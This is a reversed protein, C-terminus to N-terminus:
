SAAIFEFRALVVFEEERLHELQHVASRGPEFFKLELASIDKRQDPTRQEKPKQAVAGDYSVAVAM